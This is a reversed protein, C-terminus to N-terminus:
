DDKGTAVGNRIDRAGARTGMGVALGFAVAAPAGVFPLLWVVPAAALTAVTGAVVPASGKQVDDVYRLRRRVFGRTKFYGGVMVAGTAIFAITELM